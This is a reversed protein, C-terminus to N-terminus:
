AAGRTWADDPEDDDEGWRSRADLFVGNAAIVGVVSSPIRFTKREDGRTQVSIIVPRNPDPGPKIDAIEGLYENCPGFVRRGKIQNWDFTEPTDDIM